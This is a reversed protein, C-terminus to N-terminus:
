KLSLFAISINIKAKINDLFGIQNKKLQFIIKKLNNSHKEM